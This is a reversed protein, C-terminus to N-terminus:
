FTKSKSLHNESESKETDFTYIILSILGQWCVFEAGLLSFRSEVLVCRGDM